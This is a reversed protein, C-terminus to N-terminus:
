QKKGYLYCAVKHTYQELSPENQSCIPMAFPCRLRYPCGKEVRSYNIKVEEEIHLNDISPTIKILDKTYPHLPESLIEELDGEEVIRGAFMVITNGRNILHYFYRAIPIDHTIFVMSLGLKNKIEALTNLIGIRLSADVMTVPEDAVVLKPNVALSRAINLRQKQGGSLQHPYKTLFDEPPILKVLQLLRIMREKLENKSLKEWRLIPASLIEEVAKNFPLTSYPDQPILQVERRYTSYMKRKEKWIDYGKYIVNGKTPKQLGVIIRGLTTKGAGSEGIVTILDGENINLSIDKLAYFRKKRLIGERDEFIVSVNKLQMLTM